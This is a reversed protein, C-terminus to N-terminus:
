RIPTRPEALEVEHELVAPCDDHDVCCARDRAAHDAELGNPPRSPPRRPRYQCWTESGFARSRREHSRQSRGGQPGDHEDDAHEDERPAERAERAASSLRRLKYSAATRTCLQAIALRVRRRTASKRATPM